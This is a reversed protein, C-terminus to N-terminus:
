QLEHDEPPDFLDNGQNVDELNPLNVPNGDNEIDEASDESDDMVDEAVQQHNLRQMNQQFVDGPPFNIQPFNDPPPEVRVPVDGIPRHGARIRPRHIPNVRM